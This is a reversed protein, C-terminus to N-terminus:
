RKGNSTGWEAMDRAVAEPTQFTQMRMINISLLLRVTLDIGVFSALYPNREKIKDVFAGGSMPALSPAAAIGNLSSIAGYDLVVIVSKELPCTEASIATALAAVGGITEALKATELEIYGWHSKIMTTAADPAIGLDILDLVLSLQIFQKWGYIAKKGKGTNVGEPFGLRQLHQLRGRFAKEHDTVIGYRASFIAEIERFELKM